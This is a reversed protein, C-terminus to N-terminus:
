GAVEALVREFQRAAKDWSFEQARERAQKAFHERLKADRVLTLAASSLEDFNGLPVLVATVHEAHAGAEYAVAPVGHWAAEVIPLNFGEWLSACLYIDLSQYFAPMDRPPLNLLPLGGESRVWQADEESGIGCLVTRVSPHLEAIRRGVALVERTGKYPPHNRHLRGCYGLVIDREGIGQAHRFKERADLQVGRSYHDGGLHVVCGKRRIDEPQQDHLFRSISVIRAARPKHLLSESFDLWARNLKGKVSFGATPINGFNFFVEPAGLIRGAGYYPHTCPVVVDYREGAAALRSQLGSLASRANMELLALVRNVRAGQVVIERIRYPQGTYTGDSTPTWVDVEHGYQEVLRCAIEHVTLDVGFGLLMRTTFFAIRM